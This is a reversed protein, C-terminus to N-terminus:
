RLKVVKRTVVADGAVLRLCYIGVPLTKGSEDRGDWAVSYHGPTVARSELTRVRCGLPTYVALDAYGSRPLSFGAVARTRFPNPMVDLALGGAPTVNGSPKVSIGIQPDELYGWFEVTKNGKATFFLPAGTGWHVVDAGYKIRKKRGTSGFAPITEKETWTDAAVDYKWWEQTNGGKLAWIFGNYYAASSGAKSKKKWGMAGIFPMGTLRTTDWKQTELDYRYLEHYKAKHAYLYRGKDWVLWSCRDWKDRVGPPPSDLPEWVDRATNYRYFEAKYGKLCYVYGTDGPVYALDTGGKVKKRFPGLPVDTLAYWTDEAIDYYWWGLSNNGQTAYVRNDHDTAGKAGKRPPKSGWLPHLTYPMGSLTTWTGRITGVWTPDYSYFDTTKYGKAVYILGNDEHATAWGGRKVPRGSPASPMQTVEFWGPPYRPRLTIQLMEVVLNNTWNQDDVLYTSCRATYYGEKNIDAQRFTLEASSGAALDVTQVSDHYLRTNTQDFISFHTWFTEAGEGYNRVTATVDLMGITDNTGVPSNISVVGVDHDIDGPVWFTDYMVNNSYDIDDPVLAEVRCIWVGPPSLRMTDSAVWLSEGPALSDVWISDSLLGFWILLPFGRMVNGHNALYTLVRCNDLRLTEGPPSLDIDLVAIDVTDPMLEAEVGVDHELSGTGAPPVGLTTGTGPVSPGVTVVIFVVVISRKM